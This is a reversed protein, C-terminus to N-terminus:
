QKLERNFFNELVNEHVNERLAKAYLTKMVAPDTIGLKKFASNAALKHGDGENKQALQVTGTKYTPTPSPAAKSTKRKDAPASAANGDDEEEGDIDLMAAKAYRRGYSIASGISQPSERDPKLSLVSEIYQGSKHQLRSTIIVRGGDVAPSQSFSLGYKTLAKYTAKRLDSLKAYRSKFHPNYGSMKVDEFEAQASALATYLENVNESTRM